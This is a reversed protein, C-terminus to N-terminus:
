NFTSFRNLVRFCVIRRHVPRCNPMLHARLEGALSEITACLLFGIRELCHLSRGRNHAIRSKAWDLGRGATRSSGPWAPWCGDGVGHSPSCTMLARISDSGSASLALPRREDNGHVDNCVGGTTEGGATRPRPESPRRPLMPRATAPRRLNPRSQGTLPEMDRAKLHRNVWDFEDVLFRHVAAEREYQHVSADIQRQRPDNPM